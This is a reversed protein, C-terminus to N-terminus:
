VVLSSWAPSEHIGRPAGFSGLSLPSVCAENLIHVNITESSSFDAKSLTVREAALTDTAAREAQVMRVRFVVQPEEATQAALVGNFVLM